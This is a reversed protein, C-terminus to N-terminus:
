PSRDERRGCVGEEEGGAEREAEEQAKRLADSGKRFAVTVFGYEDERKHFRVLLRDLDDLVEVTVYSERGEATKLRGTAGEVCLRLEGRSQGSIGFDEDRTFDFKELSGDAPASIKCKREPQEPKIEFWDDCVYNRTRELAKRRGGTGRWENRGRPRRWGRQSL